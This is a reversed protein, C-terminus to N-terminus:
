APKKNIYDLIKKLHEIFETKNFKHKAMNCPSCAPVCNDVNYGQGPNLRDVGNVREKSWRREGRNWIKKRKPLGGCYHCPSQVLKSFQGESLEWKLDRNFANRRYERLLRNLHALYRVRREPM